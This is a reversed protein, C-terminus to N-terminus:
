SKTSSIDMVFERPDLSAATFLEPVSMFGYGITHDGRKYAEMAEVKLAHEESTLYDIIPAYRESMPKSYVYVGYLRAALVSEFTVRTLANACLGHSISGYGSNVHVDYFGWTSHATRVDGLEAHLKRMRHMLSTHAEFWNMALMAESVDWTQMELVGLVRMAHRWEERRAQFINHDISAFVRSGRASPVNDTVLVVMVNDGSRTARAIAGGMGITEDDTHPTYFVQWAM